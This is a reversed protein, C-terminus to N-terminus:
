KGSWYIYTELNISEKAQRISELMSPFIEDGDILGTIRNGGILPPGLFQGMSRLFQPDGIGYQPEVKYQIGRGHFNAACGATMWLLLWASRLAGRFRRRMDSATRNGM